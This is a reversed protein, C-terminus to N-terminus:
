FVFKMVTNVLALCQVSDQILDIWNVNKRCIEKPHLKINDEWTHILIGPLKREATIEAITKVSRTGGTHSLNM